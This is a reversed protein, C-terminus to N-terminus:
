RYLLGSFVDSFLQIGRWPSRGPFVEACFPLCREMNRAYDMHTYVSGMFLSFITISIWLAWIGSIRKWKRWTQFVKAPKHGVASDIELPQVKKSRFIIIPISVIYVFIGPWLMLGIIDIAWQKSDTFPNSIYLSPIVVSVTLASWYATFALVQTLRYRIYYRKSHSRSPAALLLWVVCWCAVALSLGLVFRNGGNVGFTGLVAINIAALVLIILVRHVDKTSPVTFEFSGTPKKSGSLDLISPLNINM